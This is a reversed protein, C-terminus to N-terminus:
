EIKGVFRYYIDVDQIRKGNEDKSAEHVVIKEILENLLPATLETLENYKRIIALWREANDRSKVTQSLKEKLTKIKTELELQEDQYRSSLMTYNRETIAKKARDEYLKMYLNDLETLRKEAQALEKKARDVEAKHQKDGSKLLRALLKDEDEKVLGIWYQLRDLVIAYLTDHKIYHISCHEKGYECYTTCMFLRREKIKETPYNHM